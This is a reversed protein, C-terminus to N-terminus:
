SVREGTAAGALVRRAFFHSGVAIAVSGGVLLALLAAVTALGSTGTPLATGPPLLILNLVVFWLGVLLVWAQYTWERLRGVDRTRRLRWARWAVYAAFLLVLPASVVILAGVLGAFFPAGVVGLAAWLWPERHRRDAARGDGSV